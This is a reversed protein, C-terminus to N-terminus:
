FTTNFMHKQPRAVKGFRIHSFGTWKNYVNGFREAQARVWVFRIIEKTGHFRDRQLVSSLNERLHGWFIVFLLKTKSRAFTPTIQFLKLAFKVAFQNQLMNLYSLTNRDTKVFALHFQKVIENAKRAAHSLPKLPGWCLWCNVITDFILVVSSEIARTQFSCLPSFFIFSAINRKWLPSQHHDELYLRISFFLYVVFLTAQCREDVALGKGFNSVRCGCFINVENANRKFSFLSLRTQFFFRLHFLSWSFHKTFRRNWSCLVETDLLQCISRAQLYCDTYLVIQPPETRSRFLASSVASFNFSVVLDLCTSKLHVGPETQDGSILRQGETLNLLRRRWADPNLTVLM